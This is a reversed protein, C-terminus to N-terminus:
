PVYARDLFDDILKQDDPDRADYAAMFRRVLREHPRQRQEVAGGTGNPREQAM